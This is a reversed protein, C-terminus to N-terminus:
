PKPPRGKLGLDKEYTGLQVVHSQQQAKFELRLHELRQHALEAGALGQFRDIIRQLTARVTEYDAGHKLQLDAISNLWRAVEKGPQHPAQILQELQAIALDLRQYYDVYLHALQERAQRVHGRTRVTRNHERLLQLQRVLRRSAPFVLQFPKRQKPKLLRPFSRLFIRKGLQDPSM